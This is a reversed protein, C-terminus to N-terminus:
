ETLGIGDTLAKEKIRLMMTGRISFMIHAAIQTINSAKRFGGGDMVSHVVLFCIVPSFFQNLHKSTEHEHQHHSFLTFCAAQFLDVLQDMGIEDVLGRRLAELSANQAEDLPPYRYKHTCLPDMQRLVGFVLRHLTLSYKELSDDRVSDFRHLTERDTTQGILRPLGFSTHNTIETNSKVLFEYSVKRLREGFPAKPDTDICVEVVDEPSYGELHNLWREKHFFSSTNMEDEAGKIEMKSYVRLPPLSQRYALSYHIDEDCARRWPGVDVEFFQRNGTLQQGYGQHWTTTENRYQCERGRQRTTQHTRLTDYDAFGKSCSCFHLPKEVLPIGFVPSIPGRSYTVHRYPVLRYTEQLVSPLEAPVKVLPLDKHLHEVLNDCDIARKCNM